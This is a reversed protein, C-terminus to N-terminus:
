LAIQPFCLAIGQSTITWDDLLTILQQTDQLQRAYLEPVYAMGLGAVAAEVMLASSNLTLSGPNAM